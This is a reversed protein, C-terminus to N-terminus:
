IFKKLRYYVSKIKQPIYMKDALAQEYKLNDVVGSNLNM